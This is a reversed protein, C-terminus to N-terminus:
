AIASAEIVPYCRAPGLGNCAALYCRAQAGSFIFNLDTDQKEGGFLARCNEVKVVCDVVFKVVFLWTRCVTKGLVGWLIGTFCGFGRGLGRGLKEPL